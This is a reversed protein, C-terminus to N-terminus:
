ADGVMARLQEVDRLPPAGYLRSYERSFQSPSEYGVRHAASAVDCRETLLLRRAEQLRLQKQYQLPSMATIARFHHHLSSSSMNVTGALEDIRLPQHYHNKLWDIAHSIQHSRSGVTVVHRLRSGQEGTLLRYLLEREILPALVPLDKPTDLLRVLRLVTDMLDDSVPSVSLGLGATGPPEPLDADALLEGIRRIDFCLMACLYPRDASADIVQSSVPLDISTVLYNAQDYRYTEGGLLVQKAGQAVLALGPQYMACVQAGPTGARFFTLAPLATAHHGDTGTSRDIIAALEERDRQLRTSPETASFHPKM